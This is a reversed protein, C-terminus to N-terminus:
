DKLDTWGIPYGQLWEVWTPNLTGGAHTALTKSNRMLESPSKGNDKHDRATPTPWMAIQCNSNERATKEAMAASARPTPWLGHETDNTRHM